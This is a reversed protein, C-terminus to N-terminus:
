ESPEAEAEPEGTQDVAADPQQAPQIESDSDAVALRSLEEFEKLTPLETL